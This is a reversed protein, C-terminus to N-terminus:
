RAGVPRPGRWPSLEFLQRLEPLLILRIDRQKYRQRIDEDVADVPVAVNTAPLTDLLCRYRGELKKLKETLKGAEVACSILVLLPAPEELLAIYDVLSGAGWAYFLLAGVGREFYEFTPKKRSGSQGSDELGLQEGLKREAGAQEDATWKRAIVRLVLEKLFAQTPVFGRTTGAIPEKGDRHPGYHLYAEVFALWDPLRLEKRLQKFRGDDSEDFDTILNGHM